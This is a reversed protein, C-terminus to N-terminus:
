PHSIWVFLNDSICFSYFHQNRLEVLVFHHDKNSFVAGRLASKM